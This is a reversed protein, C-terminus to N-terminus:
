FVARGAFAFLLALVLLPVIGFVLVIPVVVAAGVILATFAMIGGFIAFVLRFPLLILEFLLRFPLFLLKFMFSV